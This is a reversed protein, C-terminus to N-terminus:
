TWWACSPRDVWGGYYGALAGVLLGILTAIGVAVFGVLLSIRAGFIIRSLVDRGLTDTGLLHAPSPPM